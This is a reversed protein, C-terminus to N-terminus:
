VKKAVIQVDHRHNCGITAASEHPGESREIGGVPDRSDRALIQPKARRCGAVSVIVAPHIQHVSILGPLRGKYGGFWALEHIAPLGEKISLALNANSLTRRSLGALNLTLTNLAVSKFGSQGCRQNRWM